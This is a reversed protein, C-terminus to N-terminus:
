HLRGWGWYDDGAAARAVRSIFLLLQEQRVERGLNGPHAQPERDDVLDHALVAARDPDLVVLGLARAEDDLDRDGAGAHRHLGSMAPSCMRITSSSGAM